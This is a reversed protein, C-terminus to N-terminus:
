LRRRICLLNSRSGVTVGVDYTINQPAPDYAWDNEVTVDVKASKTTPYYRIAFRANLHPEPTGWDTFEMSTLPASVVWETAVDGCLWTKTTSSQLPDQAMAIYHKGGIIVYVNTSFGGSLLSSPAACSTSGAAVTSLSLLISQSASLQPLVGSIVAHKVSGDAYTSKVDTQLQM